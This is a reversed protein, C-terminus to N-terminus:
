SIWEVWYGLIILTFLVTPPITIITIRVYDRWWAVNVKHQKLITIWILSALTGMPLLLSGVDSGIVSALYAIKLTHPALHMNTLTLTGILLAPHNNFFISMFSILGGMYLSAKLLSGSVLPQFISILMNTLGINNLGYIIVYMSYAFVFIHWPTKKLLDSPAIKFFIWRWGLLLLSGLVAVLAIPIGLYSAVFLSIRVLFVFLLINRMFINRDKNPLVNTAQSHFMNRMFINRDKNPLVNTAQSHFM